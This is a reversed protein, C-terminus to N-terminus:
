FPWLSEAWDPILTKIDINKAKSRNHLRLGFYFLGVILLVFLGLEFSEAFSILGTGSLRAQSLVINDEARLTDKEYLAAHVDAENQAGYLLVLEVEKTEDQSLSFKSPSIVQWDSPADEVTLFLDNARTPGLNKVLYSIIYGGDHGKVTAITSFPYNKSSSGVVIQGIFKYDGSAVTYNLTYEGRPRADYHFNIFKTEDPQLKELEEAFFRDEGEEDIFAVVNNLVTDGKNTVAIAIDFEINEPINMVAPAEAVLLPNETEYVKVVFEERAIDQDSEMLLHVTYLGPEAAGPAVTAYIAESGSAFRLSTPDLKVPLDSFVSVSYDDLSCNSYAVARVRIESYQEVQRYHDGDLLLMTCQASAAVLLLLIGIAIHKLEM